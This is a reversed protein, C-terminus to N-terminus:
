RGEVITCTVDNVSNAGESSSPDGSPSIRKRLFAPRRPSPIAADNGLMSVVASMTPRYTAFEQVRLFAIQLCRIVESVLYSEGIFSDILEVARGEKWLEWVHGVLNLDPYEDNYYGANKKGTIIELLLVGFSYVDSRDNWQMNLPCIILTVDNVSYAGENGSPEGSPSTRKMLFAPRGPSPLAADNGLMSVVASMTPRDIAFEQVCLLAIQICRIVESVLYPEAITSDIIEVHKGEMWLEWVHGVMNSNPYEEHYYGVNKKGTIIELLLVGFYTGVVRNTNVESQEGRFIRAMGFDAVKPNFSSDLLVNSAKLDRHIIKLRSDEHLYLVGRAIGLIIEFRRTWNLLARKTENFIFCDLSKNPLYEYILIKEEDEVCCGLIRVLNRHQLKAILLVENKFEEVGQGSYKSLRKIAIERGDKLIGKYVSGFGGEGLKNERSFNDTATAVTKLHFLILESNIRGDDFATESTSEEFYTSGATLLFSFKKRRRKGKMKMRVWWYLALLLLFVAVSVLSIALRAKKSLSGGSNTYQASTTADVRVYLIQGHDSYTRTDMMDGYWTVCGSGGGQEDVISYATCSCNMLCEIECAKLSLSMKVRATSTDPVEVRAVKVFGEGNQCMPAGATRICGRVGVGLYWDRPSKPEFGPLCYCALKNDKSPDCYSNPGCQGYNDCWENPHNNFNTWQNEQDSWVFRRYIGSEDVMGRAITSSDSPTTFMYSIEDGNNVFNVSFGIATTYGAQVSWGEGIWPFGRWLPRGGKYLVLKPIGRPDLGYTCNGTGPDDKSKWNLINPVPESRVAPEAWNELLVLNGTDLLKAISNNPSSLTVNASWLPSSSDKGHIVLGGDGSISLVGSSDNVPNDRNAVWVITKETVKNFWVGIYRHRSNEPSFFGLAFISKGSVLVDDDRIPQNPKLADLPLQCISSPLLVFILLIMSRYCQLPIMLHTTETPLWVVTQNPVNNYCVGVFRHQSNGPSFFGLAFIKRGSVLVDGDRVPQNPTLADLSLQCTTSALLLLFLILMIQIFPEISFSM